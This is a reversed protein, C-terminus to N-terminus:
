SKIEKYNFELGLEKSRKELSDIIKRNEALTKKADGANVELMYNPAKIYKFNWTKRDSYQELLLRKISDVGDEGYSRITLLSRIVLKKKTSEVFKLVADKLDQKLKFKDLASTNGDLLESYLNYLSGYEGKIADILNQPSKDYKEILKQLRNSISWEKLTQRKENDGVRKISLSISQPTSELVKCVVLSNERVLDKVNKVWRNSLESIHVFGEKRTSGIEVIIGHQLIKKVKCIYVGGVKIEDTGEMM